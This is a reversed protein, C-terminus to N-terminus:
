EFRCITGTNLLGYSKLIEMIYFGTLLNLSCVLQSTETHNFVKINFPNLLYLKTFRCVM